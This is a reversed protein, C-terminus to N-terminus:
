KKQGDLHVHWGRTETELGYLGTRATIFLTRCGKGGFTCNSPQEPVAIVGIWKGDPTLVCVGEFGTVYLRGKEDVTMGDPGPTYAIREGKGIKGPGQVPYRYLLSTGNDIVYLMKGDPSLAIGNPRVLDDIIRSIRGDATVYYVAEKDLELDDRGGYRPDTFYVGGQEDISLDNPSNLRKGEYRDVITKGPRGPVDARSLLRGQSECAILAGSRDFMLGNSQGSRANAVSVKGDKYRVIANAPIDSFFLSDDKFNWAPGETFKFSGALKKAAPEGKTIGPLESAPLLKVNDIRTVVDQFDDNDSYEWGIIYSFAIPQGTKADVNPYIMAKYPQAKLRPTLTAVMRPDTFVGPEDFADNHIWLVFEAEGPDFTATGSELKPPTFGGSKMEAEPQKGAYSWLEKRDTVAAAGAWSETAWGGHTKEERGLAIIPTFTVPGTGARKFRCAPVVGEYAPNRLDRDIDLNWQRALIDTWNPENPGPNVKPQALMSGAHVALGPFTMVVAFAFGSCRM